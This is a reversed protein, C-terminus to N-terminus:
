QCNCRDSVSAARWPVSLPHRKKSRLLQVRFGSTPLELGQPVGLTVYEDGIPNCWIARFIAADAVGAHYDFQNSWVGRGEPYTLTANAGFDNSVSQFSSTADFDLLTHQTAHTCLPRAARRLCATLYPNPSRVVACCLLQSKRVPGCSRNRESHM